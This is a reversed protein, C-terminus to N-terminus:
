LLEKEMMAHPIPIHPPVELESILTYGQKEYFPIAKERANLIMKSKGADRAAQEIAQLIRAGIGHIQYDEAVTMYRAQGTDGELFLLSGFGVLKDGDFAGILLDNVEHELEDEAISKGWPRRLVEHRLYLTQNYDDSGYEIPRIEIKKEPM